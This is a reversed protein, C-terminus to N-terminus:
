SRKWIMDEYKHNKNKEKIGFCAPVLISFIICIFYVETNDTIYLVFTYIFLSFYCLASERGFYNKYKKTMIFVYYILWIGFLIFGIEYYMKLIDSHVGSVKMYDLEGGFLAAVSNRGFGMFIPTFKIKSALASWYYNRGMLFDAGFREMFIFLENGKSLIWIFAYSFILFLMGIWTCLKYQIKENFIHSVKHFLFCALVGLIAIRKLGMLMILIAMFMILINKKTLKMRTFIFFCIIYGIALVVDHLEFYNKTYGGYTSLADFYGQEIAYVIIGLGKLCISSTISIIWSIILSFSTYYIAKDYFLYMAAGATLIPIYATLNTSFIDKSIIGVIILVATYVHIIIPMILYSKMVFKVDKKRNNKSTKIYKVLAIAVWFIGISWQVFNNSYVYDGYRTTFAFAMSLIYLFALYSIRM